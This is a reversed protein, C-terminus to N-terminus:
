TTPLENPMDLVLEYRLKIDGTTPRNFSVDQVNDTIWDILNDVGERFDWSAIYLIANDGKRISELVAHEVSQRVYAKTREDNIM